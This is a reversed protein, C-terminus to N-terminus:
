SDLPRWDIRMASQHSQGPELLFLGDGSSNAATAHGATTPEVCLYKGPDETWIVAKPLGHGSITIAHTNNKFNWQSIGVGPSGIEISQQLNETDILSDVAESAIVLDPSSPAIFYPHFGPAVVFPQDGNNTIDLQMNLSASHDDEENIEVSLLSAYGEYEEPILSDQMRPNILVFESSNSAQSARYEWSLNRGFGHQPLGVKDGPGFTPTCVPIGGRIKDDLETRPFLLEVDGFQLSALYAGYPDIAAQMEGSKLTVVEPM